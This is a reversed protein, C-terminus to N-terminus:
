CYEQASLRNPHEGHHAHCADCYTAGRKYKTMYPKLTNSYTLQRDLKVDIKTPPSKISLREGNHLVTLERNAEKDNLHFPTVTTKAVSLKLRWTQIYDAILEMDSTLM